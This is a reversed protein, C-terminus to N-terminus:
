EISNTWVQISSPEMPFWDARHWPINLWLLCTEWTCRTLKTPVLEM